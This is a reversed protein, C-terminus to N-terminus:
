DGDSKKNETNELTDEQIVQYNKARTDHPFMEEEFSKSRSYFNWPDYPQIEPTKAM